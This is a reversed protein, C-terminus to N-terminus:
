AVVRGYYLPTLERALRGLEDTGVFAGRDVILEDDIWHSTRCTIADPHNEGGAEDWFPQGMGCASYGSLRQDEIFSEGTFRAAPHFGCTFHIFRGLDIGGTARLLARELVDSEALGGSVKRVRGEVEVTIKNPLATYYEHFVADFVVRGEVTDEDPMVMVCGPVFSPGPETARGCGMAIPNGLNFRVDTGADNTIRYRKGVNAALLGDFAETVAFLKELDVGSFLRIMSETGLDGGLLYRARNAHMSEDFPASGALYPWTMDIWVDCNVVAAKVPDSVYPNSLAGQIPLRPMVILAANAGLRHAAAHVATIASMDSATDATIVVHEGEMVGMVDRLMIDSARILEPHLAVAM